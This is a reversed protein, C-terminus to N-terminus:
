DMLFVLFTAEGSDSRLAAILIGSMAEGDGIAFVRLENVGPDDFVDSLAAKATDANEITDLLMPVSLLADRDTIQRLESVIDASNGPDRVHVEKWPETWAKEGYQDWLKGVFERYKAQAAQALDGDPLKEHFVASGFASQSPGGYVAALKEISEPQQSMKRIGTQSAAISM